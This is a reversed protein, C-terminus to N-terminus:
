GGKVLRRHNAKVKRRLHAMARAPALHGEGALLSRTLIDLRPNIGNINYSAIRLTRVKAM